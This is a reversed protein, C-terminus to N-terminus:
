NSKTEPLIFVDIQFFSIRENYEHSPYWQLTISNPRIAMTSVLPPSPVKSDTEFYNVNTEANVVSKDLIKYTKLYYAYQTFPNLGTINYSWYRGIKQISELGVLHSKWINAFCVDSGTYPTVNRSETELWLVLFEVLHEHVDPIPTWYVTAEHPSRVKHRTELPVIPQCLVDFLTYHLTFDM